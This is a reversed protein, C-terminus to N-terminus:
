ETNIRKPPQWEDRSTSRHLSFKYFKSYNADMLIRLSGKRPIIDHEDRERCAKIILM